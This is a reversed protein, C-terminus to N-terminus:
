PRKWEVEVCKAFSEGNWCYARRLGDSNGDGMQLFTVSPDQGENGLIPYGPPITEDELIRRLLPSGDPGREMALIRTVMAAEGPTLYYALIEDKGDGNTDSLEMSCARARDERELPTSGDSWKSWRGSDARFLALRVADDSSYLVALEKRHDGDMDGLGYQLVRIGPPLAAYVDPDAIAPDAAFLMLSSCVAALLHFRGFLLLSRM